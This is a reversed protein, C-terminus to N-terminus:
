EDHGDETPRGPQGVAQELLGRVLDRLQARTAAPLEDWRMDDTWQWVCQVAQTKRPM